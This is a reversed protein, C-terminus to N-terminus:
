SESEKPTATFNAPEMGKMRQGKFVNTYQSDSEILRRIAAQATYAAFTGMYQGQTNRVVWFQSVLKKKM